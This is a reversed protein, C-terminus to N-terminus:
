LPKSIKFRYCLKEAWGRHMLEFLIVKGEDLAVIYYYL